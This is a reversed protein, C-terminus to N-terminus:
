LLHQKIENLVSDLSTFVQRNTFRLTKYGMKALRENRIRDHEKNEPNNHCGGDLEVIISKSLCIFDAIYDEIETIIQEIKSSM